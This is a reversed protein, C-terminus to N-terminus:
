QMNHRSMCNREGVGTTVVSGNRSLILGSRCEGFSFPDSLVHFTCADIDCMTSEPGRVLASMM